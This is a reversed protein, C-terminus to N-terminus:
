GEDVARVGVAGAGGDEFAVVQEEDAAADADGAEYGPDVGM